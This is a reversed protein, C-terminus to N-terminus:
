TYSKTGADFFMGGIFLAMFIAQIFKVRVLRPNRVTNILARDLLASLATKSEVETKRFSVV